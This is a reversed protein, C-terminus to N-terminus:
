WRVSFFRTPGTHKRVNATLNFCREPNDIALLVIL